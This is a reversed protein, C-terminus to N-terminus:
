VRGAASSYLLRVGTDGRTPRRGPTAAVVCTALLQLPWGERRGQGQACSCRVSEGYSSSSRPGASVRSDEAPSAASRYSRIRDDAMETIDRGRVRAVVVSVGQSPQVAGKSCRVKAAGLPQASAGPKPQAGWGRGGGCGCGLRLLLVVRPGCWLSLSLRLRLWLWLWLRSWM